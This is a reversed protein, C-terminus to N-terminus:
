SQRRTKSGGAKKGEGGEGALVVGNPETAGAVASSAAEAGERTMAERRERKAAASARTKLGSLDLPKVDGGGVAGDVGEEGGGDM